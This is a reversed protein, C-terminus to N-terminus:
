EPKEMLSRIAAASAARQLLAGTEMTGYESPNQPASATLVEVKALPLEETAKAAEELARKREDALAARLFEHLAAEADQASGQEDDHTMRNWGQAIAVNWYRELLETFRPDSM